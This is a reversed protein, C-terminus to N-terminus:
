DLKVQIHQDISKMCEAMQSRTEFHCIAVGIAASANAFRQVEEGEKVQLRMDELHNKRFDEDVDIGAFVGARDAHIVYYTWFGKADTQKLDSCPEGLAAMITYYTLDVGTAYNILEPIFNGGNRPGIEMLYIRGDIGLRAEINYAGSKMNLLSLARQVEADVRQKLDEGRGTCDLPFMGGQVAFQGGTRSDFIHDGYLSFALKGDVSFGDGIIQTGQMAVFTEVIFRRSRSYELAAKAAAALEAPSKVMVVGKSGSSDVPKVVLPGIHRGWDSLAEDVEAYGKSMPCAFGNERLFERFRDKHTLIEVSELPHGSLGLKEAVYAATPASVDSAFSIIGDIHEERAVKLVAEMDVSSVNIYKNSFRHGPNDPLYDCSIAVYGLARAMQIIPTQVLNAGLFMIRKPEM